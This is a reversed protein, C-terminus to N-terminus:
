VKINSLRVGTLYAALYICFCFTMIVVGQPSHYLGSFYGPSTVSIYFILAFPMVNMIKQELKKASLLTEIEKQTEARREITLVTREMINTMNGGSSKAIFFVEAFDMIEEIECSAGIEKWLESVSLNNELGIKLETIMRCISSYPGYLSSLDEYSNLFANEVSYGAKQGTVTLVLMDKFQQRIQEKKRHLLEQYEKLYFGIGIAMLPFFMWWSRYFCYNIVVMVLISKLILAAKDGFSLFLFPNRRPLCKCLDQRKLNKWM